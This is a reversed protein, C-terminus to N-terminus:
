VYSSDPHEVDLAAKDGKGKGGRKRLGIGHNSPKDDKQRFAVEEEYNNYFSNWLAAMVESACVPSTNDELMQFVFMGDALLYKSAFYKLKKKMEPDSVIDNALKKQTIKILHIVFKDRRISLYIKNFWVLSSGVMLVLVLLLWFCLFVFYRQNFVNNPMACQVWDHYTNGFKEQHSVNCFTVLPFMEQPRWAFQTTLINNYLLTEFSFVILNHGLFLNLFYLQVVILVIYLLKHVFYANGMMTGRNNNFCNFLSGIKEFINKKGPLPKQCDLYRDIYGALHEVQTVRDTPSKAPDFRSAENTLFELDIGAMNSTATWFFYPLLFTVSMVALYYPVWQYYTVEFAEGDLVSQGIPKEFPVYWSNQIYCLQKIYNNWQGTKYQAPVRCEFNGTIFPSASLFLAGLIYVMITYYNAM